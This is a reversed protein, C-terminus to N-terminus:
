KKHRRIFEVIAQTLLHQSRYSSHAKALETFTDFAGRGIRFTKTVYTDNMVADDIKIERVEAETTEVKKATMAEILEAIKNEIGDIRGSLTSYQVQIKKEQVQLDEKTCVEQPQVKLSKCVEQLTETKQEAAPRKSKPATNNKRNCSFDRASTRGAKQGAKVWQGGEGAVTYGADKFRKTDNAYDGLADMSAYLARTTPHTGDALHGNIFDIREDVTLKRFAAREAAKSM